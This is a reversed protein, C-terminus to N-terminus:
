WYQFTKPERTNWQGYVVSCLLESVLVETAGMTALIQASGAGLCMNMVM